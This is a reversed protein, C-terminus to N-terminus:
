WGYSGGSQNLTPDSLNTNTADADGTGSAAAGVVLGIGPWVGNSQLNTTSNTLETLSSDLEKAPSSWDSLEPDSQEVLWTKFATLRDRLTWTRWLYRADQWNKGDVTESSDVYKTQDNADAYELIQEVGDKVCTFMQANVLALNDCATSQSVALGSMEHLAKLQTPILSQYQEKAEGVWKDMQMKDVDEHILDIDDKLNTWNDRKDLLGPVVDKAQLGMIQGDVESVVADLSAIEENAYEVLRDTDKCNHWNAYRQAAECEKRDAERARNIALKTTNWRASITAYSILPNPMNTM